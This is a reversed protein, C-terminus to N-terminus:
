QVVFVKPFVNVVYPSILAAEVAAALPPNSGNIIPTQARLPRDVTVLMQKYPGNDGTLANSITTDGRRIIRYWFCRQAQDRAGAYKAAGSQYREYTVDAIWNGIRVDPEPAAAPWRLLVSTSNLAYYFGPFTPDQIGPGYGWVAEVVAEGAPKLVSGGGYPQNVQDLAFARNHFVVIDGDFVLSNGLDTQKGTFMWTFMMDLVPYGNADLSPVVPSGTGDSQDMNANPNSNGESQYVFDDLSAFVPEVSYGARFNTIRQLGYAAPPGGDSRLFGIGNGFRYRSENTPESPYYTSYTPDVEYWWLPDYAVPLGAGIARSVGGDTASNYAAPNAPDVLFPDFYARGANPGSWSTAFSAKDLLGRGALDSSASESLMASRSARVAQAMRMLGLPFLTLIALVGVGMIMIAILIETLTLGRRGNSTRQGNDTADPLSRIAGRARRLIPGRVVSWPGRVIM